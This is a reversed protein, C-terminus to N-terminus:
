KMINCLEEENKTIWISIQELKQMTGDLVYNKVNTPKDINMFIDLLFSETSFVFGIIMGDLMPNDSIPNNNIVRNILMEQLKNFDEKNRIKKSLKKM